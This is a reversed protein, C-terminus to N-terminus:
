IQSYRESISSKSPPIDRRDSWTLPAQLRSVSSSNSFYVLFMFYKPISNCRYRLQLHNLLAYAALGTPCHFFTTALQSSSSFLFFPSVARLTTVSACLSHTSPLASCYSCSFSQFLLPVVCIILSLADSAEDKGSTAEDLFLPQPQQPRAAVWGMM